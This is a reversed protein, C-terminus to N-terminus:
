EQEIVKVRAVFGADPSTRIKLGSTTPCGSPTMDQCNVLWASCLPGVTSKGRRGPRMVRVEHGSGGGMDGGGIGALRVDVAPHRGLLAHGHGEAHVFLGPGQHVGADAGRVRVPRLRLPAALDGAAREM